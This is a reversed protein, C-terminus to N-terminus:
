KHLLSPPVGVSAKSFLYYGRLEQLLSLPDSKHSELRSLTIKWEANVLPNKPDVPIRAASAVDEEKWMIPAAGLLESAALAYPSNRDAERLIAQLRLRIVSLFPLGRGATLRQFNVSRRLELDKPDVGPAIPFTEMSTAIEFLGAFDSNATLEEKYTGESITSCHNLYTSRLALTNALSAVSASTLDSVLGSDIKSPEAMLSVGLLARRLEGILSDISARYDHKQECWSQPQTSPQASLARGVCFLFAAVSLRKM